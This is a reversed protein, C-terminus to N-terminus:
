RLVALYAYYIDVTQQPIWTDFSLVFYYTFKDFIQIFSYDNNSFIYM